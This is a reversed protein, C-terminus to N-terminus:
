SIYICMYITVYGHASLSIGMHLSFLIKVYGHASLIPNKHSAVGTMYKRTNKTHDAIYGVMPIRQQEVVWATGLTKRQMTTFELEEVNIGRLVTAQGLGMM